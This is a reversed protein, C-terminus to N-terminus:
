DRYLSSAPDPAMLAAVTLPFPKMDRGGCEGSEFLIALDSTRATKSRVTASIVRGKLIAGKRLNCAPDKWEIQVRALISDGAHVRDLEITRVLEAQVPVRPPTSAAYSLSGLVSGLWTLRGLFRKSMILQMM